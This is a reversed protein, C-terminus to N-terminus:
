RARKTAAATRRRSSLRQYWTDPAQGLPGEVQEALRMAESPEDNKWALYSRMAAGIADWGTHGTTIGALICALVSDFEEWPVAMPPMELPAPPKVAMPQPLDREYIHLSGVNHRYDGTERGLWGAMLEQLVTTTFMDYPMGIWADQSRMDTSMHLRGDRVHFQYGLTCPVDRHGSADRAPDYLQIVARRSDPDERLIEIVRRLQDVHGGWGRMRPGYAGLLLGGDTYHRLRDNYAYIWPEDSGSLIWVTEAAAFAPNIVRTPPLHVLRARPRSVRLHVDLIERTAMGRPSVPRGDRAVLDAARCFVEPVSDAHLMM